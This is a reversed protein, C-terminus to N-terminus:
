TGSLSKFNIPVTEATIFSTPYHISRQGQVLSLAAGPTPLLQSYATWGYDWVTQADMQYLTFQNTVRHMATGDIMVLDLTQPQM